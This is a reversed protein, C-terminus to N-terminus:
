AGINLAKRTLDLHRIGKALRDTRLKHGKGISILVKVSGAPLACLKAVSRPKINQDIEFGVLIPYDPGPGRWVQDIRGRGAGPVFEPCVVYGASRGMSWLKAKLIEHLAAGLGVDTGRVRESGLAEALGYFDRVELALDRGIDGITM